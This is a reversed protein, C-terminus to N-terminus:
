GIHDGKNLANELPWSVVELFRRMVVEPVRAFCNMCLIFASVVVDKNVPTTVPNSCISCLLVKRSQLEM